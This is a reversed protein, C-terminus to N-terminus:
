WNPGGRRSSRTSVVLGGRAGWDCEQQRLDRVILSPRNSRAPMAASANSATRSLSNPRTGTEQWTGSTSSHPAHVAVVIPARSAPLVQSPQVEIDLDDLANIPEASDFNPQDPPCGSAQEVVCWRKQM